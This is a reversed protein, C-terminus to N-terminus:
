TNLFPIDTKTIDEIAATVDAIEEQSLSNYKQRKKILLDHIKFTKAMAFIGIEFHRKLVQCATSIYGIEGPGYKCIVKAASNKSKAYKSIQFSSFEDRFFLLDPLNAFVSNKCSRLWLEYDECRVNTEDYPWRRFWQAKGMISPHVISVGTKYKNRFIEEHNLAVQIKRDPQGQNNLVCAASGVVDVEPHRSLYELQMEFRKPHCLDDADMRAIFDGKATETIQNLRAPLRRNKGDAPLLKVRPDDISRAIDLSSDTSGDDVLILEWDHFTQAFVSRVSDLLGKEANFFPIGVTLTPNGM